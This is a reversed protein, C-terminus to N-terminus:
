CCCSHNTPVLDAEPEDCAAVRFVAICREVDRHICPRVMKCDLLHSALGLDFNPVEQLLLCDCSPLNAFMSIIQLESDM